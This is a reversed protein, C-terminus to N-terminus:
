EIISLQYNIESIIETVLDNIVIKEYQKLEFKSSLNNYSTKKTFKYSSLKNNNKFVTITVNIKMQYSAITGSSNKSEITKEIENQSEINFKKEINQDDKFRKFNLKLLRSIQPDGNAVHNKILFQNSPIKNLPKYGCSSVMTIMIVIFIIKLSKM